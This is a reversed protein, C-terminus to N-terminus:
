GAKSEVTRRGKADGSLIAAGGFHRNGPNLASCFACLPHYGLVAGTKVLAYAQYVEPSLNMGGAKIDPGAEREPISGYPYIKVSVSGSVDSLSRHDKGDKKKGAPGDGADGAGDQADPAKFLAQWFFLGM